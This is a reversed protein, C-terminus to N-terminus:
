SQKALKPHFSFLLNRELALKYQLFATWHPLTDWLGGHCVESLIGIIGIRIIILICLSKERTDSLYQTTSKSTYNM